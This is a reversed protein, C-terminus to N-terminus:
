KPALVFDKGNSVWHIMVTVMTNPLVTHHSRAQNGVCEGLDMVPRKNGQRGKKRAERIESACKKLIMEVWQCRIREATDFNVLPVWTEFIALFDAVATEWYLPRDQVQKLRNQGRIISRHKKELFGVVWEKKWRNFASCNPQGMRKAFQKLSFETQTLSIPPKGEAGGLNSSYNNEDTANSLKYSMDPLTPLNAIGAVDTKRPEAPPQFRKTTISIPHRGPAGSPPHPPRSLSSSAPQNVPHNGPPGPPVRPAGPSSPGHGPFQPPPFMQSGGYGRQPLVYGRWPPRYSAYGLSTSSTLQSSHTM